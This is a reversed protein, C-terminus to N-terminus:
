VELPDTTVDGSSTCTDLELQGSKESEADEDVTLTAAPPVMGATAIVAVGTFPKVPVIVKEATEVVLEEPYTGVTVNLGVDTFMVDALATVVEIVNDPMVAFRCIGPIGPCALGPIIIAFCPEPFAGHYAAPDPIVIAESTSSITGPRLRNPPKSISSSAIPIAPPAVPQELPVLPTAV